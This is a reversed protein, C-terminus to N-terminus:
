LHRCDAITAWKCPSRLHASHELVQRPLLPDALGASTGDTSDILEADVQLGSLESRTGMEEGLKESRTNDVVRVSRLIMAAAFM